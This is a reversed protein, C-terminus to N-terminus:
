QEPFWGHQLTPLLYPHQGYEYPIHQPSPVHTGFPPLHQFYFFWNEM